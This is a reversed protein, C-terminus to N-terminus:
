APPQTPYYDDEDDAPMGVGGGGRHPRAYYGEPADPVADRCAKSCSFLMLPVIDTGVCQTTWHAVPENAGFPKNCVSCSQPAFINARQDLRPFPLLTKANGYLARTSIRSSKLNRCRTIEYPLWHLSYSTYIDLDNLQEMLGIEPPIRGLHSGYFRLEETQGLMGISPPLCIISSWAEPSMFTDPEVIRAKRDAADVFIANLRDWSEGQVQEEYHLVPVSPRGKKNLSELCGCHGGRVIRRAATTTVPDVSFITAEQSSNEKRSESPEKGAIFKDFWRM